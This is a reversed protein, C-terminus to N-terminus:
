GGMLWRGVVWWGSMLWRDAVWWGGGRSHQFGVPLAVGGTEHAWALLSARVLGAGRWWMAASQRGDVM